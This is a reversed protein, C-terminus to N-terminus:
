ASKTKGLETIKKYIAANTIFFLPLTWLLGVLLALVGLINILGALLNLAFIEGVFGKTINRSKKIAKMPCLWERLILYPVMSLKISWIIGPVILLVFGVLAIIWSIINAIFYRMTTKANIFLNRRNYEEGYVIGLSISLLGLTIWRGLLTTVFSLGDVIIISVTKWVNLSELLGLLISPTQDTGSIITGLIQIGVLLAFWLFYKKMHKKSLHRANKIIQSGGLKGSKDRSLLVIGVICAPLSLLWLIGLIWNFTNKILSSAALEPGVLAFVFFLATVIFRLAGVFLPSLILSIWLKKM